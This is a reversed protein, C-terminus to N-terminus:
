AQAEAPEGGRHTQFMKQILEGLAALRFPKALFPVPQEPLAELYAPDGSTLITPIGLQLVHQALCNGREGSMLCDILALDVGGGALILRAEEASAASVVRYGLTGLFESVVTQVDVDDEVLLIRPM